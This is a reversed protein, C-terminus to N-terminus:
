IQDIREIQLHTVPIIFQSQIGKIVFMYLSHKTYYNKTIIHMYNGLDLALVHPSRHVNQWMQTTM